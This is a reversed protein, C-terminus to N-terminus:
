QEKPINYNPFCKHVDVPCKYGICVDGRDSMVCIATPFPKDKKVM